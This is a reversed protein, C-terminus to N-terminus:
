LELGSSKKANCTSKHNDPFDPVQSYVFEPVKGCKKCIVVDMPLYEEKGSPSLLAPLRKFISVSEFLQPEEDCGVWELTRPDVRMQGLGDEKGLNMM